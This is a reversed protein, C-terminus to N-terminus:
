RVSKLQEAILKDKGYVDDRLNLIGDKDVWATYYDIFLPVKKELKLETTKGYSSNKRLSERKKYYESVVTKDSVQQGTEIKLYDINWKSHNKLLYESLLYPKEVRVCGHSVARNSYGFPARTPTDHLYIGFPNNFMFKIRGLANGAGPDQVIRYPIKDTYLHNLSVESLDIEVGEKYVKFNKKHLYSSDKKVGAYIEERIISPPVTWTPNLILYSIESYIQPTEWDDPKNQWRKTKMFYEYRDDYNAPRKKGTCVKIEIKEEKNEVLRLKFDPINVVIYRATDSYDTWRFRELNIKIKEINEEPSINLHEVTTKGIIGDDILGNYRQFKKVAEVIVSDYHSLNEIKTKSTDIFDLNILRVAIEAILTDHFGPEIKKDPINLKKWEINKYKKYFALEKKLKLYKEQKPQISDLYTIIDEQKFAEFLIRKSSDPLPLFYSDGFLNLPNLVGFKLHTSYKLVADAVFIETNCLHLYREENTSSDKIASSFESKIRNYHYYNSDLGHEDAQGFIDLLKTVLDGDEYSKIFHPKYNQSSYYNRLTDYYALSSDVNLVLITGNRFNESLSSAYEKEDFGYKDNLSVETHGTEEKCSSIIFLVPILLIFIKKLM